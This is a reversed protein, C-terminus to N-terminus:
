PPSPAWPRSRCSEWRNTLSSIRCCRAMARQPRIEDTVFRHSLQRDRGHAGLGGYPALIRDLGAVVAEESAGPALRLAVADFAGEMELAAELARRPMWAIGFHRDDPLMGGPPIAYVYEPSLVVGTVLLPERRGNVTLVMRHGPLIRNAVAFNESVVGEGRASPSPLRGQRLHVRNLRSGSPELSVLRLRASGDAVEARADGLVRTEVDAVGPLEAIRHAVPEPVRRAEAFVDAFSQHAYYLDRSRELARWTATSGVFTATACAMVVAIAM